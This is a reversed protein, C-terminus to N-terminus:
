PCGRSFANQFALFDFLTLQGDGDYDAGPNGSDFANQFALFDFIDPKGDDNFDAPCPISDLGQPMGEGLDVRLTMLGTDPDVEWIRRTPATMILTGDREFALTGPAGTVESLQISNVIEGSTPDLKYLWPQRGLREQAIAYLFGDSPNYDLGYVTFPLVKTGLPTANGTAVDVSALRGDETFGYLGGNPGFSLGDKVDGGIYTALGTMPNVRSLGADSSPSNNIVFIGGYPAVAISVPTAFRGPDPSLPGIVRVVEGTRTQFIYLSDLTSDVALMRDAHAATTIALITLATTKFLAPRWCRLLNIKYPDPWDKESRPM